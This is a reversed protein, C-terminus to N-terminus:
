LQLSYNKYESNNFSFPMTQKYPTYSFLLREITQLQAIGKFHEIAPRSIVERNRFM